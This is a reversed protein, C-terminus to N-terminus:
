TPMTWRSSYSVKLVATRDDAPRIHTSVGYYAKKGQDFMARAARALKAGSDRSAAVLADHAPRGGSTSTSPRPATEVSPSMPQETQIPPPFQGQGASSQRAVPSFGDMSMRSKYSVRSASSASRSHVPSQVPSQPPIYTTQVPSLSPAPRNPPPPPAEDQAMIAPEETMSIDRPQDMSQRERAPSPSLQSLRRDPAPIPPRRSSPSRIPSPPMESTSQRALRALPPPAAPEDDDTQAVPISVSPRGPPPPPADEEETAIQQPAPAQRPQPAEGEQTEESLGRQDQSEEAPGPGHNFMGFGLTGGARLRALTKRRRDAEDQPTEDRAQEEPVPMPQRREEVPSRAPASEEAPSLPAEDRAGPSIPDESTATQKRFVPPPMGFKIGGLKAMRAAIGSRRAKEQDEENSEEVLQQDAAM